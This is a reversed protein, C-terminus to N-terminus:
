WRESGRRRYDDDQSEPRTHDPRSRRGTYGLDVATVDARRKHPRQPDGGDPGDDPGDDPGGDPGPRAPEYGPAENSWSQDGAWAPDGGGPWHQPQGHWGPHGLSPGGFSPEDDTWHREAYGADANAGAGYGGDSYGGGNDPYGNDAYGSEPHGSEPYGSEPYGSEAYGGYAPEDDAWATDPQGAFFGSQEVVGGFRAGQPPPSTPPRFGPAGPPPPV